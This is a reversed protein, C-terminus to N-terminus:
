NYIDGFIEKMQENSLGFFAKTEGLYYSTRNRAYIRMLEVENEWASVSLNWRNQNREIEPYYSDCIEDIRKIVNETKFTNNLHYSLRELWLKKFDDNKLLAYIIDNEFSHETMGGAMGIYNTYWNISYNYWAFDLDYFIYHFRGNDYEDSSFLRVNLLDNNTFYGEAIWYDAFNVPDIQEIVYKYNDDNSLDHSRCFERLANYKENTGCEVEGDIRFINVSEKSVNYHDSIFHSNVKERINYIGWYNGNVYVIVSKYAQVDVDSYEDMLSTGAIDRIIAFNWDNSGARLVFSDYVANDRNPFLKYNLDGAGWDDDFRLCYAKKDQSRANGGFLSISCPSYIRMDNEFLEMYCQKELGVYWANANLNSFDGADPTLSLVPLTHNENIIYSNIVPESRREGESYSRAKIVATENLIIDEGEYLISNKDPDSGNLTYYIDGRGSLRVTVSDNYIGGELSMSPVDSIKRLGENNDTEPSPSDSYYFGGNEYRGYSYNVPLDSIYVSDIVENNKYLFIAENKSIKFPLHKYSNNSLSVDGSCMVIYYEHPNLIVDDLQYKQSDKKDTNLAYDKLNVPNDSNNYLEIWDYYRGGNHVLYKTNDNMVENIILDERAKLYENAFENIGEITNPYGKSLVSSTYYKGDMYVLAKGKALDHYELRNILKGDKSLLLQGNSGKLNFSSDDLDICIIKGKDLIGSLQYRFIRNEDDSLYYHSLNISHDSDNLLEIYGDDKSLYNGNNSTLVENILLEDETLNVIGEQYEKLGKYSNEYGPTLVDSIIWNGNEDRVMAEGKKLAMTDVGDIIRKHANTLIIREGGKSSLKFNACLGDGDHGSLSVVIYEDPSIIIQPFLWRIRDERDSLGYGSLDIPKNTGNYIELYDTVENESNVYVGPNSSVVESIVLKSYKPNYEDNIDSPVIEKPSQIYSFLGLGIVGALSLGILKKDLKRDPKFTIM